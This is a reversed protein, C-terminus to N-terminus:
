RPNTSRDTKLFRGCMPLTTTRSSRWDTMAPTPLRTTTLLYAPVRMSFCVMLSPERAVFGHVAVGSAGMIVAGTQPANVVRGNTISLNLVTGRSGVWGRKPPFYSPYGLVNIGDGTSRYTPTPKWEITPNVLNIFAAPGVIRIGHSNGKGESLNDMVLKAGADFKVSVFSLGAL